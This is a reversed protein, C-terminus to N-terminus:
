AEDGAETSDAAVRRLLMGLRIRLQDRVDAPLDEWRMAEPDSWDLHTQRNPQRM